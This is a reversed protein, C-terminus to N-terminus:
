SNLLQNNLSLLLYMLQNVQEGTNTSGTKPRTEALRSDLWRPRHCLALSVQPM